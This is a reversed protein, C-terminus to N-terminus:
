LTDQSVYHMTHYMTLKEFLVDM